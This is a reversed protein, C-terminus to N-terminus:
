QKPWNVSQTYIIQKGKCFCINTHLLKFCVFLMAVIVCNNEGDGMQIFAPKWVYRIHMHPIMMMECFFFYEESRGILMCIHLVVQGINYATALLCRIIWM